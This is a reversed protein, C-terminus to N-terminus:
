GGQVPAVVDLRDGEALWHEGYMSRPVFENNVAVAIDKCEYGWLSLAQAVTCASELQKSEENVKLSIM